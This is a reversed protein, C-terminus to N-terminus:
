EIESRDAGRSFVSKGSRLRSRRKERVESRESSGRRGHFVGEQARKERESEEGTQGTGAGRGGFGGVMEELFDRHAAVAAPVVERHIGGRV